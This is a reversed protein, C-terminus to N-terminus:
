LLSWMAMEMAGTDSAPVIALRYDAPLQLLAHTRNLADRLKAIGPPSRHSRGLLAGEVAEPRRGPRKACPGSSFYPRRPQLAPKITVHNRKPPKAPHVPRM